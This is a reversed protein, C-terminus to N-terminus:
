VAIPSRRDAILSRAGASRQGERPRMVQCRNARLFRHLRQSVKAIALGDLDGERDGVIM